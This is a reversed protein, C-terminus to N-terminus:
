DNPFHLFSFKAEEVQFEGVKQPSLSPLYVFSEKNVNRGEGRSHYTEFIQASVGHDVSYVLFALFFLSFKQRMVGLLLFALDLTVGVM